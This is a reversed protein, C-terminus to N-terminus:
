VRQVLLLHPLALSKGDFLAHPNFMEQPHQQGLEYLAGDVPSEVTGNAAAWPLQHAQYQQSQGEAVVPLTQPWGWNLQPQPHGAFPANQAPPFPAGNPYMNM